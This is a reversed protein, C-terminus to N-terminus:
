RTFIFIFSVLFVSLEDGQVLAVSFELSFRRSGYLSMDQSVLQVTTSTPWGSQRILYSLSQSPLEKAGNLLTWAINKEKEM